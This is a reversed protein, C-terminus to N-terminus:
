LEEGNEHFAMVQIGNQGLHIWNKVKCIGENHDMKNEWASGEV